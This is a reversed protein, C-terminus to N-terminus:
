HNQVNLPLELFAVRRRARGGRWTLTPLFAKDYRFGAAEPRTASDGRRYAGQGTALAAVETNTGM